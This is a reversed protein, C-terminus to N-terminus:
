SKKGFKKRKPAETGPLAMTGLRGGQAAARRQDETLQVPTGNIKEDEDRIFEFEFRARSDSLSVHHTWLFLLPDLLIAVAIAIFLALWDPNCNWKNAIVGISSLKTETGGEANQIQANLTTVKLDIERIQAELPKLLRETMEMKKTPYNAPLKQIESVVEARRGEVRAQERLASDLQIQIDQKFAKDEAYGTELISFIAFGIGLTLVAVAGLAIRKATRDSKSLMPKDAVRNKGMSWAITAVISMAILSVPIGVMWYQPMLEKFGWIAVLCALIYGVVVTLKGFQIWAEPKYEAREQELPLAAINQFYRQAKKIRDNQSQSM